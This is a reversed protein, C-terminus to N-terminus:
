IFIIKYFNYQTASNMFHVQFKWDNFFLFLFNFDYLNPKISLFGVAAKPKQYNKTKTVLPESKVSNRIEVILFSIPNEETWDWQKVKM